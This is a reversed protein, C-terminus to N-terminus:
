TLGTKAMHSRIVAEGVNGIIKQTAEIDIMSTFHAYLVRQWNDKRQHVQIFHARFYESVEEYNNRRDGFSTIYKRVKIGAALKKKLIDTKNLLLVLHASKLLENSCIATFLQLSDDIRNTRTDEELYQDFASIPALFIIATADDFYPVWAHRMGRAGGVDYMLWNFRSGGLTIQYRHEAIGLTQLRVNLLDDTTPLYDPEALRRINDLFFPAAEDLRLMRLQLLRRVAPHQWLDEIEEVLGALTRATLDTIQAL